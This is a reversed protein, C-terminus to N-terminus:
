VPSVGLISTILQSHLRLNTYMFEVWVFVLNFNPKQRGYM